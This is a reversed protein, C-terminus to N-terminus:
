EPFQIDKIANDERQVDFFNLIKVEKCEQMEQVVQHHLQLNHKLLSEFDNVKLFLQRLLKVFYNKHMKENCTFRFLKLFKTEIFISARSLLVKKM